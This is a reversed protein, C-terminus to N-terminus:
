QDWHFEIVQIKGYYNVNLEARVTAYKKLITKLETAPLSLQAFYSEDNRPYDRIFYSLHADIILIQPRLEKFADELSAGSKFQRFYFLEEWSYWPHEYL